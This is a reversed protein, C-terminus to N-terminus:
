KTVSRIPKTVSPCVLCVVIAYVASAYCRMTFITGEAMCGTM